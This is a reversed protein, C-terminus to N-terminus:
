RKTFFSQDGKLQEYIRNSILESANTMAESAPTKENILSIVKQLGLAQIKEPSLENIGALAIVPKHHKNALQAVGMVVKGSLTQADMKGEGTIVLDARKIQDELNTTKLIYEIGRTFTANLFVKTGAGLGGAAGAGAFQVSSKLQSEVVAAFNRLGADLLQVSNHDAGKQPSYVYAAGHQGFLENDVDCLVVVEIRNKDFIFKDAVMSHIHILNEGIPEFKKEDVAIFKMGLAAAMGIGADNTASGGIALVIKKVGRNIADAILEGTGFTTTKLPNHEEKTLLQLGSASAMEIFATSGDGSIGYSANIKRFLPDSVQCTVISGNSHTTLLEYTGEGGDAMPMSIVLILPSIRNLGREIALCVESASLSGKFKDPALLITM